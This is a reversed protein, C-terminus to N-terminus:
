EIDARGGLQKLLNAPGHSHNAGSGASHNGGPLKLLVDHLERFRFNITHLIAGVGASTFSLVGCSGAMVILAGSQAQSRMLQYLVVGGLLSGLAAFLLAILGFFTLPKTSKFLSLIKLLVRAGDPLTSLKSYSGPPRERYPIPIEAIVFNYSLLQITMETEAEFGSAIVPVSKAVRRTFARYGSMIDSLGAGFILNILWRVLNNGFVHFRRFAKERNATRRAGVSVDARGEVLPALLQHVSSAEYTDDGDVMVLYDAGEARLMSNIVFGKGRRKEFRVTAGHKRAEEATRDTCANDYVVINALPLERRFDDIVKGIAVEENYCPILVVVGSGDFRLERNESTPTGPAAPSM